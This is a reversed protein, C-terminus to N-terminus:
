SVARLEQTRRTLIRCEVGAARAHERENRDIEYAVVMPRLNLAEYPTGRLVRRAVDVYNCAQAVPDYDSDLAHRAHRKVEAIVLTRSRRSALMWLDPQRLREVDPQTPTAGRMSRLLRSLEDPAHAWGEEVLRGKITDYMAVEHRPRYRWKADFLQHIPVQDTTPFGSGRRWEPAVHKAADDRILHAWLPHRAEDVSVHSRSVHAYGTADRVAALPRPVSLPLWEVWGWHRQDGRHARVADTVARGIAIFASRNGRGGEYLVLRDGCRLQEPATWAFYDGDNEDALEGFPWDISMRWLRGSWRARAAM